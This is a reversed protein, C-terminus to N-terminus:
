AWYRCAEMFLRYHAEAYNAPLRYARIGTNKRIAGAIEDLLDVRRLHRPKVVTVGMGLAAYANRRREDADNEAKTSHYLTGDYEVPYRARSWYFDPRITMQGGLLRSAGKNLTIRHNLLPNGLGYGGYYLPLRFMISLATEAPSGSNDALYKCAVLARERGRIGKAKKVYSRISSVCALPETNYTPGSGTMRYTGCLEHGLELLRVLSMKSAAMLFLLEPTVVYLDGTVRVLSRSPVESSIVRVRAGKLKRKSSTKGVLLCVTGDGCLGLEKVDRVIAASPADVCLRGRRKPLFPGRGLTSATADVHTRWYHLASGDCLIAEM